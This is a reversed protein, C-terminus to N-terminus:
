KDIILFELYRREPFAKNVFIKIKDGLNLKQGTKKGEIYQKPENYFYTDGVLSYIPIIGECKNENLEVYIGKDNVGSIIGLYTKGINNEMFKVQMYKTSDREAKTGAQEKNSAHLCVEELIEKSIEKHRKDLIRHVLLDPYRRIPSTFHTYHQFCLGYHGNNETSYKAKAMSRLILTTIMNEEEKGKVEKLLNKLSRRLAKKNINLDYGFPFITEKLNIIKEYDPKDHIRYVFAKKKNNNQIHQAVTKNALLMLEEILKTSDTAQKIYIKDPIKNKNLSFIAEKRDFDLTEQAMRKERIKKTIEQSKTLAFYAQDCVKRNKGTLSIKPPIEKSKKELIEQVEEYSFRYDSKIITKGIWEKIVSANEEIIFIVSFTLKDERPKLSCIENSIREPLMPIVRDALYVSTGRKYAEKDILSGETIYHSVDAIHIGIEYKRNELKKFSIADDFDKANEPDITFTLRDRFDKRKKIEKAEIKDKVKSAEREIEKTHKDPLNYEFMISNMEANMGGPKGLIKIIEGHPSTAGKPWKKIEVIVKDGDKVKIMEKKEIFVDVYMKPGKTLVFGYNKQKQVIGSFKKKTRYIIENIEGTPKGNNKRKYAYVRVLDDQLAKNMKKKSVFVDEGEKTEIVYANGNATIDLVGETYFKTSFAFRYSGKKVSKIRKNKELEKLIISIKKRDSDDKVNFISSVQRYNLSKKPNMKFLSLIEAPKIMKEEVKKRYSM